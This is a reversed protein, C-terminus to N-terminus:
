LFCCYWCENKTSVTIWQFWRGFLTTCAFEKSANLVV